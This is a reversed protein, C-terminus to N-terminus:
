PMESMSEYFTTWPIDLIEGLKKATKIMPQVRSREILSYSQQRIGAAEAAQAQTLGKKIRAIKIESTYM